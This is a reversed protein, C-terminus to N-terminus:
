GIWPITPISLTRCPGCMLAPIHSSAFRRATAKPPRGLDPLEPVSEGSLRQSGIACVQGAGACSRLHVRVLEASVEAAFIPRLMKTMDTTRAADVETGVPLAADALATILAAEVASHIAKGEPKGRVSMWIRGFSSTIATAVLEELAHIAVPAIFSDM